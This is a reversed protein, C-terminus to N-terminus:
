PIRTPSRIFGARNRSFSSCHIRSFRVGYAAGGVVRRKIRCPQRLLVQGETLPDPRQHRVGGHEDIVCEVGPCETKNSPACPVISSM